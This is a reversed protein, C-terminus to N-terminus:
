PARDQMAPLDRGKGAQRRRDLSRKLALFFHHQTSAQDRTMSGPHPRYLMAVRKDVAMPVAQERVRMIWDLDEGFRLAEDLCGVRDFLTRRCLLAGFHFIPYSDPEPQEQNPLQLGVAGMVMEVDPRAKLTELQWALRGPVWVDDADIFAILEGRAERIGRNRAAAPGANKQSVVRTEPFRRALEASGDESGDDVVVIELPRHEQELVSSLAQALFQEGNFVPLIVSVLEGM